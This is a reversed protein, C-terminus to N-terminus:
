TSVSTPMDICYNLGLTVAIKVKNLSKTAVIWLDFTYKGIKGSPLTMTDGSITIESETMPSGAVQVFNEIVYEHGVCATPYAQPSNEQFYTTLDVTLGGSDTKPLKLTSAGKLSVSRQCFKVEVEYKNQSGSTKIVDSKLFVSGLAATTSDYTTVIDVDIIGTASDWNTPNASPRVVTSGTTLTSLGSDSYGTFTQPGCFNFDVKRVILQSLKVTVTNSGTALKPVELVMKTTGSVSSYYQM